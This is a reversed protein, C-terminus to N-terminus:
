VVEVMVVAVIVAGVVMMDVAVVVVVVDVVEVVVVVVVGGVTVVIRVTVVEARRQIMAEAAYSDSSAAGTCNRRSKLSPCTALAKAPLLKRFTKL